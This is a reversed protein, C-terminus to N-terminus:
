IAGRARLTAELAAAIAPLDDLRTQLLLWIRSDDIDAYGHVLLNRLGVMGELIEAQEPVLFGLERLGIVADRYTELGTRNLAGCIHLAVDLLRRVVDADLPM